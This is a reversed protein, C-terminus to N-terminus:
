SLQCDEFRHRKAILCFTHKSRTSPGRIDYHRRIDEYSYAALTVMFGGRLCQHFMRGDSDGSHPVTIGPGQVGPGQSALLAAHSNVSDVITVSTAATRCLTHFAFCHLLVHPPVVSSASFCNWSELIACSPSEEAEESM